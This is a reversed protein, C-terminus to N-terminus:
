TIEEDTARLTAQTLLRQGAGLGHRVRGFALLAAEETPFTGVLISDKGHQYAWLAHESGYKELKLWDMNGLNVLVLDDAEVWM